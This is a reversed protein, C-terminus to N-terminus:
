ITQWKQQLRKIEEKLLTVEQENCSKLCAIIQVAAREAGMKLWNEPHFKKAVQMANLIIQQIARTKNIKGASTASSPRPHTM